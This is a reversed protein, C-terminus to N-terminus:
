QRERLAVYIVWPQYGYGDPASHWHDYFFYKGSTLSFPYDSKLLVHIVVSKVAQWNVIQKANLYRLVGNASADSVGYEVKMNVVNAILEQRQGHAPKMFLALILHGQSDRRSTKGIYYAMKIFQQQQQYHVCQGVVFVDSGLLVQTHLYAPVQDSHYGQIAQQQSVPSLNKDCVAYGAMRLRASFFYQLFDEQAQWNAWNEQLQHNRQVVLYVKSLALMIVTSLIIACLIEILSFGRQQYDDFLRTYHYMNLGM